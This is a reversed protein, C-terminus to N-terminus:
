GRCHPSKIPERTSTWIDDRGVRDTAFYLTRADDSLAAQRDQSMTNIVSGLNM